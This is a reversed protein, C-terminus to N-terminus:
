NEQFVKTQWSSGAQSGVFVVSFRGASASVATPAVLTDGAAGVVMYQPSSSVPATFYGVSSTGFALASTTTDTTGYMWHFTLGGSVTAATDSSLNLFWVTQTGPAYASTGSYTNREAVLFYSRTADGNLPEYESFFAYQYNPTLAQRMTDVTGGYNFSWSRTGSPLDVYSSANQYTVTAASANDVSVAMSSPLNTFDIFRVSSRFDTPKLDPNNVEVCGGLFLAVAVLVFLTYKLMASHKM